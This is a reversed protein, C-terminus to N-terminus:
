IDLGVRKLLAAFRPEAHLEKFRPDIKLYALLPCHEDAANELSALAAARDDLALHILSSYYGSVYHHRAVEALQQLVQRAMGPRGSLAHIRGTVALRAEDGTPWSATQLIKLAQDALSHEVQAEALALTTTGRGTGM